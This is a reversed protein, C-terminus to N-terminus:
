NQKLHEETQSRSILEILIFKKFAPCATGPFPHALWPLLPPSRWGDDQPPHHLGVGTPPHMSSTTTVTCAHHFLHHDGSTLEREEELYGKSSFTGHKGTLSFTYSLLHYIFANM